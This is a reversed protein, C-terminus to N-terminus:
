GRHRVLRAPRGLQLSAHAAVQRGTPVAQTRAGTQRPRARGDAGRPARRRRRRWRWGIGSRLRRGGARPSRPDAGPGAGAPEHTAERGRQRPVRVGRQYGWRCADAGPESPSAPRGRRCVGNRKRHRGLRRRPAHRSRRGPPGGLLDSRRGLPVRGAATPLLVISPGGSEDYVEAPRVYGGTNSAAPVVDDVSTGVALDPTAAPVPAVEPDVPPTVSPTEPATTTVAVAVPRATDPAPEQVVKTEVVAPPQVAQSSKGGAVPAGTARQDTTTADTAALHVSTDPQVAPDAPPESPKGDTAANARENPTPGPATGSPQTEAPPTDAQVPRSGTSQDVPAQAPPVQEVPAQAPPVQEVPAPAPPVQEVPAPAPPVQEVPAPAPAAPEAPAPAPPATSEVTASDAAAAQDVVMPGTEAPSVEALLLALAVLTALAVAARRLLHRSFEGARSSGSGEIPRSVISLSHVAGSALRSVSRRDPRATAGDTAAGVLDLSVMSLSHVAGSALRSVSRRDPRAPQGMRRPASSIWTGPGNAVPILRSGMPSRVSPRNAGARARLRSEEAAPVRRAFPMQVPDRQRIEGPGGKAAQLGDIRVLEVLLRGRTPEGPRMEEVGADAVMFCRTPPQEGGGICGGTAKWEGCAGCRLRPEGYAAIRELARQREDPTM